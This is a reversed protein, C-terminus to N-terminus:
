PREKARFSVLQVLEEEDEELVVVSVAVVVVLLGWVGASDDVM